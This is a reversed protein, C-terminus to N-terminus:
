QRMLRFAFGTGLKQWIALHIWVLALSDLLRSEKIKLDAAVQVGFIVEHGRKGMGQWAHRRCKRGRYDSHKHFRRNVEDKFYFLDCSPM